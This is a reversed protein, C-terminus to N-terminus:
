ALLNLTLKTIKLYYVCILVGLEPTLSWSYVVQDMRISVLFYRGGAKQFYWFHTNVYLLPCEFIFHIGNLLKRTFSDLALVM